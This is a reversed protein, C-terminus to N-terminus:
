TTKHSASYSVLFCQIHANVLTLNHGVNHFVVQFSGFFRASVEKLHLITNHVCM